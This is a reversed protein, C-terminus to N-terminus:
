PNLKVGIRGTEDIRNLLIKDNREKFYDDVARRAGKWYGYDDIIIVGGSSLRPFLHNLEHLTSDHWDTDLRLLSVKQPVTEPITKKVDGKVYIINKEPYGTSLMNKKVKDLEAALWKEKKSANYFKKWIEYGPKNDFARVDMNSPEGMGEYTDYLFIKKNKEGLRMLTLAIIMASGGKWVGCEIMDGPIKRRVTYEVALYLAYMREASTMTYSKTKEYIERFADEMDYPLKRNM